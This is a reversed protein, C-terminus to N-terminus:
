DEDRMCLTLRKGQQYFFWKNQWSCWWWFNLKVGQLYFQYHYLRVKNSSLENGLSVITTASWNVTSTSLALLGTNTFRCWLTIYQIETRKFLKSICKTLYFNVHSIIIWVIIFGHPWKIIIILIEIENLINEKSSMNETM